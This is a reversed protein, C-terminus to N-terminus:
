EEILEACWAYENDSYSISVSYPYVIDSMWDNCDTKSRTIIIKDNTDKYIVSEEEILQKVWVFTTTQVWWEDSPVRREITNGSATFWWFPETWVWRIADVIGVIGWTGTSEVPESSPTQGCASVIMTLSTLALLIYYKKM